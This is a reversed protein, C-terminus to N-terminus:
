ARAVLLAAVYCVLAASIGVFPVRFWYLWGLIFLGVLMLLGVLQLYVSGFLVAPHAIVLYGFVLGFLIAAMSHSANFGLWANWVTTERTIVLHAAKMSEILAPDRPLLKPGHFTYLLHVFGLLSIIAASTLMLLTKAEMLKEQRGASAPSPGCSLEDLSASHRGV